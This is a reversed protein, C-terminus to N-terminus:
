LKNKSVEIVPRVAGYDTSGINCNTIRGARTIVWAYAKNGYASSATWYGLTKINSNNLCGFDKCDTGSRDYLWGYNCSTLNGTTCTASANTDNSDFYFGQNYRTTTEDFTTNGTIKAIENATILRAKYGDYDITYNGFNTQAMTYNVPEMTGVWDKTDAFLESLVYTAETSPGNVNNSGPGWKAYATTNHDLIMMVKDETEAYAYFKLCGNQTTGNGGIGNYNTNSNEDLYNTCVKGSTVDYYLTYPEIYKVLKGVVVTRYAVSNTGNTDTTTYKIIYINRTDMDIQNDTTVNIVNGNYDYAKVGKEVYTEGVEYYEIPSGELEITPSHHKSDRTEVTTEVIEYVYRNNEKLIKFEMSDEIEKGDLPNIISNEVVGEAKLQGLTIIVYEGDNIPLWEKYENVHSKLNSLMIEMQTDYAKQKTQTIYSTVLPYAIMLIVSLVVLVGLLEVLTFGKKNKM